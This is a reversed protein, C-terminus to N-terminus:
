SLATADANFVQPEESRAILGWAVTSALMLAMALTAIAAPLFGFAFPEVTITIGPLRFTQEGVESRIVAICVAATSAAAALVFLVAFALLAGPAVPPNYGNSQPYPVGGFILFVLISTALLVVFAIVPVALLLLYRKNRALAYRVVGLGIPLGGIVVALLAVASGGALVYWSAALEAHTEMLRIFPSDDVMGYLYLGAVVFGIYACFVVIEMKRLTKSNHM